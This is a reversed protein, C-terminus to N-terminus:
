PTLLKVTPFYAAFRQPDNTVLDWGEVQAQAGIFFDPL